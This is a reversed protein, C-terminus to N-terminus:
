WLRLPVKPISLRPIEDEPYLALFRALVLNAIRISRQRRDFVDLLIADAYGIEIDLAKLIREHQKCGNIKLYDLVLRDGVYGM